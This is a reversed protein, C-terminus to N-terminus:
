GKRDDVRPASERLGFFRPGNWNTGTILRAIATLNTYQRERWIFGDRVVTVTHRVGQYERILVTGPKLRRFLPEGGKGRALENLLKITQKDHGGRSREQIRWALTRVLLDRSFERPPGRDFETAWTARLDDIELCNIQKIQDPLSVEHKRSIAGTQIQITTRTMGWGREM